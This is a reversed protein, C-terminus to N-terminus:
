ESNESIIDRNKHGKLFKHNVNNIKILALWVYAEELKLVLKKIVSILHQMILMLICPQFLDKKMRDPHLAFYRDPILVIVTPEYM